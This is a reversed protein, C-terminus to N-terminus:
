LTAIGALSSYLTQERRYRRSQQGVSITTDDLQPLLIHAVMVTDAGENIAERFRVLEFGRLQELGKGVVPLEVHSDVSTDGHGPFHKVVSMIGKSKIGKMTAVGLRTVLEANAGFSRDGIVPNDPNSNIDLVPSFDMNFGFAGIERAIARGVAYSLEPDDIEGIVQMPPLDVLEAPMRSVRGGEEDVSLFLPIENESNASKLDNLLRVLQAPDRINSSYLIFGGVHHDYILKETQSDVTYGNLGVLVRQGIQESLSM